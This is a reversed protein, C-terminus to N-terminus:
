TLKISFFTVSIAAFVMLKEEFNLHSTGLHLSEPRIDRKRGSTYVRQNQTSLTGKLHFPADDTFIGNTFPAGIDLLDQSLRVRRQENNERHKKPIPIRHVKIKRRTHLGRSKAIRRVTSRSIGTSAAVKRASLHTGPIRPPSQLLRAVREENDETRVTRPRGSGHRREVSGRQAQIKKCADQITTRKWDRAGRVTNAIRYEYIQQPTYGLGILVRIEILDEKSLVAM